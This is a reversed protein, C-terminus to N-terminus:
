VTEENRHRLDRLAVPSASERSPLIPSVVYPGLAEHAIVQPIRVLDLASRRADDIRYPPPGAAPSIIGPTLEIGEVDSPAVELVFVRSQLRILYERVDLVFYREVRCHEDRRIMLPLGEELRQRIVVVEYIQVIELLLELPDVRVEEPHDVLNDRGTTPYEESTVMGRERSEDKAHPTIMGLLFFHVSPLKAYQAIGEVVRPLIILSHVLMVDRDVTGRVRSFEWDTPPVNVPADHLDGYRLRRNPLPPALRSYCNLMQPLSVYHSPPRHLINLYPM